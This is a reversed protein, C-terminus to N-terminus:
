DAPSGYRRKKPNSIFAFMALATVVTVGALQGPRMATIGAYIAFVLTAWTYLWVLLFAGYVAAGVILPVSRFLLRLFACLSLILMSAALLDEGAPTFFYSSGPWLVLAGPKWLVVCAWIVTAITVCLKALVQGSYQYPNDLLSALMACTKCTWEKKTSM